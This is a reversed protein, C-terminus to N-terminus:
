CCCCCARHKRRSIAAEKRENLAGLATPHGQSPCVSLAEPIHSSSAGPVAEWLREQWWPSTKAKPSTVVAAPLEGVDTVDKGEELSVSTVANKDGGGDRLYRPSMLQRIPTKTVNVAKKKSKWKKEM